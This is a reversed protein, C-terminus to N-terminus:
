SRSQLQLGELEQLINRPMSSINVKSVTFTDRHSKPLIVKLLM